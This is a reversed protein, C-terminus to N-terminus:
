HTHPRHVLGAGHGDGKEILVIHIIGQTSDLTHVMVVAINEMGLSAAYHTVKNFYQQMSWARFEKMEDTMGDLPLPKHYKENQVIHALECLRIKLLKGRM